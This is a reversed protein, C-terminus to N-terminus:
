KTTLISGPLLVSVQSTVQHLRPEIFRPLRELIKQSVSLLGPFLSLYTQLYGEQSFRNLLCFKDQASFLMKCLHAKSLFALTLWGSALWPNRVHNAPGFPPCETLRWLPILPSIVAKRKAKREIKQLPFTRTLKDQLPLLTRGQKQTTEIRLYRITDLSRHASFKPWCAHQSIKEHDKMDRQKPDAM